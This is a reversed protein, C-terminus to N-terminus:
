GGETGEQIESRRLLAFWEPQSGFPDLSPAVGLVDFVTPVMSGFEEELWVVRGSSDTINTIRDRKTIRYKKPFQLEVFDVNEYEGKSNWRQTTGQSNLGGTIISRAQCEFTLTATEDVDPTTPDDPTTVVEKWVWEVEGTVPHVEYVYAGGPQTPDPDLPINSDYGQRLLVARQQYKASTICGWGLPGKRPAAPGTFGIM